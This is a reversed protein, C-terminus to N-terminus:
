FAYNVYERHERATARRLSIVWTVSGRLTIVAVHTWGDILGTYVYRDEGYDERDDFAVVAHETDMDRFRALSIRHRRRNRREKDPNFDIDV